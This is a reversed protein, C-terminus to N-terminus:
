DADEDEDDSSDGDGEGEELTVARLVRGNAGTMPTREATGTTALTVQARRPPGSTDTPSLWGSVGNDLMSREDLARKIAANEAASDLLEHEESSVAPGLVYTERRSLVGRQITMQADDFSAMLDAAADRERDTKQSIGRLQVAAMGVIRLTRELSLMVDTEHIVDDLTTKRREGDAALEYVRDAADVEEILKCAACALRSVLPVLQSEAAIREDLEAKLAGIIRQATRLTAAVNESELAVDRYTTRSSHPM